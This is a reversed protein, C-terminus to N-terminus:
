SRAIECGYPQRECDRHQNGRAAAWAICAIISCGSGAVEAQRAEVEHELRSREVRVLRQGMKLHDGVAVLMEAITGTASTGLAIVDSAGEVRGLVDAPQGM